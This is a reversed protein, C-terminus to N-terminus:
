PQIPSPSPTALSPPRTRQGAILALSERLVTEAKAAPGDHLITLDPRVVFVRGRLGRLRKSREGAITWTSAGHATPAHGSVFCLAAGGCATWNRCTEATAHALPDCDVGVIALGAGILLGATLLFLPNDVKSRM